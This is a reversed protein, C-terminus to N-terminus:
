PKTHILSPIAMSKPNVFHFWHQTIPWSCYGSPKVTCTFLSVFYNQIFLAKNQSQLFLGPNTHFPGYIDMHKPIFNYSIFPKLQYILSIFLNICSHTLMIDCNYSIYNHTYTMPSSITIQEFSSIQTITSITLNCTIHNCIQPYQM